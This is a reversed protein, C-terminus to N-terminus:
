KKNLEDSLTLLEVLLQVALEPKTVLSKWGESRKVGDLHGSSTIYAICQQKLDQARHLDAIILISAVSDEALNVSLYQSCLTKLHDMQYKESVILLDLANKELSDVNGTYIYKLLSEMIDRTIDPIEVRGEISEKTDKHVNYL